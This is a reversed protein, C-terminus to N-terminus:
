FAANTRPIWSIFDWVLLVGPLGGAMLPEFQEGAVRTVFVGYVDEADPAVYLAGSAAETSEYLLFDGSTRPYWMQTARPGRVWSTDHPRGDAALCHGIMGGGEGIFSSSGSAELGADIADRTSRPVLWITADIRDGPGRGGVTEGPLPTGTAVWDSGEGCPDAVVVWGVSPPIPLETFTFQGDANTTTSALTRAEGGFARPEPDVLHICLGEPGPEDTEFIQVQGHLTSGGPTAPPAGRDMPIASPSPRVGKSADCGAPLVLFLPWAILLTLGSPRLMPDGLPEQLYCLDKKPKQSRIASHPANTGAADGVPTAM